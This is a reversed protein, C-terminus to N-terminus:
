ILLSYAMYEEIIMEPTIALKQGNIEQDYYDIMTFDSSIITAITSLIQKIIKDNRYKNIVMPYYKNAEIRMMERKNVSKRGVLRDVKGSIVYPLIIMYQDKLMKKAAMMLKIYGVVNIAYIASTDGFYKYFLNFILQQQFSNICNGNEDSLQRMYFKVENPDFPGFLSEIMTMTSDSNVKNQLYLAESQRVWSSEFKDYDSTSDEDKRTSSLPIFSYEFGLDTIKYRTTKQISVWNFSIINKDFTYKPMINLLINEISDATHTISDRGRIDQKDWVGINKKENKNVNTGSTERLKAYMDTRDSFLYIIGDYCELLFSDIDSIRNVYAFHTILPISFCMLISMAMLYKAHEDTYQLPPNTINKYSLNLAYNDDVMRRVKNVISPSLIYRNLDYLFNEKRYEQVYTILWKINAMIVFLERDIDYYKEFYNTYKCIHDRVEDSNYCKKIAIFFVNLGNDEPMNWVSSIPAVIHGKFSRFINDQEEPVWTDVMPPKISINNEKGTAM